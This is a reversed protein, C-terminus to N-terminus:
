EYRIASVVEMRSARLAPYYGGVVGLLLSFVFSLASYGIVAERSPWKDLVQSSVAVGAIGLVIGVVAASCSLCLAESLFQFLIDSDKAGMAKKLGIERIRSRVATMMGNWIGYGGLVLTAVVAFYIFSEVWFAIRRVQTLASTPVDVQLQEVNQFRAVAPPIAAAVAGVDDWSECRVIVTNAEPLDEIRDRVSSIPMFAMTALDGAAADSMIGVVTYISDDISFQRGIVSDDELVREALKEGLICVPRHESVDEATFMRGQKIGFGNVTWFFQDVGMLMIRFVNNHVVTRVSHKLSVVESVAMVGPLSRLAEVAQPQFWQLRQITDKRSVQSEFTAKIVTAGGILTLDDNLNGKVIQGMTLIVIVGATGIAISILVGLYRRRQRLVQRASVRLIDASRSLTVGFAM